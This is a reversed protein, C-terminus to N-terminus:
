QKSELAPRCVLSPRRRPRSPQMDSHSLLALALPALASLIRGRFQLRASAAAVIVIGELGEEAAEGTGVVMRRGNGSVGMSDCCVLQVQVSAACHETGYRDRM